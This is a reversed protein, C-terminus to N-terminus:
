DAEVPALGVALRAQHWLQVREEHGLHAPGNIADTIALFTHATEHDALENCGRTSWFRAAVVFGISPAGPDRVLDPKEELPIGLAEGMERYNARGTLQTPGGGRYLWGDGPFANGLDPRMGYVREAIAEPGKACVQRAIAIDPFRRPFVQVLREPTYAFSEEWRRLGKSEHGIQALFAAIRAPTDISFARLAEDLPIPFSTVAFAGLLPFVRALRDPPVLLQPGTM